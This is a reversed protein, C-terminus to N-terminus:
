TQKSLAVRGVADLFVRESTQRRVRPRVVFSLRGTQGDFVASGVGLKRFVASAAELNRLAETPMVVQVRQAFAQHRVAQSLARRWDFLKFEMATFTIQPRQYGGSLVVSGRHTIEVLGLQRLDGVIRKAYSMGLGTRSAVYELTHARRHSLCSLVNAHGNTVGKAANLERAVDGGRHRPGILVVDPVGALTTLERLFAGNDSPRAATELYADVLAEESLSTRRMSQTKESVRGFGEGLM